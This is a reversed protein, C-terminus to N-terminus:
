NKDRRVKILAFTLVSVFMIFAALFVVPVNDM